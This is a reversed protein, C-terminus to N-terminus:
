KPNKLVPCPALSTQRSPCQGPTWLPRNHLDSRWPNCSRTVLQALDDHLAGILRSIPRQINFNKAYRNADLDVAQHIERTYGHHCSQSGSSRQQDISLMCLILSQSHFHNLDSVEPTSSESEATNLVYRTHVHDSMKGNGPHTERYALIVEDPWIQATLLLLGTRM